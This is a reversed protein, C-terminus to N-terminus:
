DCPILQACCICRPHSGGTQFNLLVLALCVGIRCFAVQHGHHRVSGSHQSQSIDARLGGHRDHLSFGDEKFFEAAHVRDGDTQIGPVCLFYYLSYLPDGGCESADIQLIYARGATKFNLLPQLTLQINRNEMIVLVAGGNHGRGGQDIGELQCSLLHIPNLDNYVPRSAGARSDSLHQKTCPHLVQNDAILVPRQTGAAFLHISM